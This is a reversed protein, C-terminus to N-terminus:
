PESGSLNRDVCNEEPELKECTGSSSRSWASVLAESAAAPAFLKPGKFGVTSGESGKNSSIFRTPGVGPENRETSDLWSFMLALDEGKLFCPNAAIGM